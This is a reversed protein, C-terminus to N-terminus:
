YARDGFRGTLSNSISSYFARRNGSMVSRTAFASGVVVMTDYEYFWDARDWLILSCDARGGNRTANRFLPIAPKIESRDSHHALITVLIDLLQLM